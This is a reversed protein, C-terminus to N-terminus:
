IYVSVVRILKNASENSSIGSEWKLTRPTIGCNDPKAVNKQCYIFIDERDWIDTLVFFETMHKCDIFMIPSWPRANVGTVNEKDAILLTRSQKTKM